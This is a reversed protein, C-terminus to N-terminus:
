HRPMTLFRVKGWATAHKQNPEPAHSWALPVCSLIERDTQLSTRDVDLSSWLRASPGSLMCAACSVLILAVVSSVPPANKEQEKYASSTFLQVLTDASHNFVMVLDPLLGVAVELFVSTEEM